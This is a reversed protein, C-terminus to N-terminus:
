HQQARVFRELISKNWRVARVMSGDSHQKGTEIYVGGAEQGKPTLEYYLRNKHDRHARQLGWETLKLNAQRHGWEYIQELDTPSLLVDQEDALRAEADLLKLPAVGTLRETALNASHIAQNGRLGMTAALAKMLKATTVITRLEKVDSAPKSAAPQAAEYKGTKRISPLVESTVWRKFKKAEPKTSGLILSYLGSENLHNVQQTRGLSDITDLKQVDDPDVHSDLAQRANGFSLAACVDNANFWPEGNDGLVVRVEHSEFQFPVISSM